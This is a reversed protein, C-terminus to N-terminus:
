RTDSTSCGVILLAEGFAEDRSPVGQHAIPDNWCDEWIAFDRDAEAASLEPSSASMAIDGFLHEMWAVIGREGRSNATQHVERAQRLTLEIRENQVGIAAL